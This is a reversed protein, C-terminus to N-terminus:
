RRHSSNLRTSKARPGQVSVINCAFNECYAVNHHRMVRTEKRARVLIDVDGYGLIPVLSDGAVVCDGEPVLRYNLFRSIENFIHLTTGSDLIASNKLPYKAVSFAAAAASVVLFCM